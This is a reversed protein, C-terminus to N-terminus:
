RKVGTRHLRVDHRARPATCDALHPVADAAPM